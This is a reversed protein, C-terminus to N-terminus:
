DYRSAFRASDQLSGLRIKFRFSALEDQYRFRGSNNPAVKIYYYM